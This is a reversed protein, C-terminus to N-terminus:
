SQTTKTNFKMAIVDYSEQFLKRRIAHGILVYDCGAEKLQSASVEGTYAGSEDWFVDQAGVKLSKSKLIQNVAYISTFSPLIISEVKDPEELLSLIRLSDNVSERINKYMKWNAFIIPKKSM